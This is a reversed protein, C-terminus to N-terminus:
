SPGPLQLTLSRYIMYIGFIMIIGGTIIQIATRTTLQEDNRNEVIQVVNSRYVIFSGLSTIILGIGGMREIFNLYLGLATLYGTPETM